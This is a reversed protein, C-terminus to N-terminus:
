IELVVCSLTCVLPSGIELFGLAEGIGGVEDLVVLLVFLRHVDHPLEVAVHLSELVVLVNVLQLLLVMELVRLTMVLVLVVAPVVDALVM